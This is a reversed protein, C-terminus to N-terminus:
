RFFQTQFGLRIAGPRLMTGVLHLPFYEIPSAIGGCGFRNYVCEIRIMIQVILTIATRIYVVFQKEPMPTLHLYTHHQLCM